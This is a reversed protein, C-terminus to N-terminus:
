QGMKMNIYVCLDPAELGTDVKYCVAVALAALAPEPTPHPLAGPGLRVSQMFTLLRSLV